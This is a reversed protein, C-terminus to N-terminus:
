KLIEKKWVFPFESDFGYTMGNNLEILFHTPFFKNEINVKLNKIDSTNIKFIELNKEYFSIENSKNLTLIGSMETDYESNVLDVSEYLENESKKSKIKLFEKIGWIIGILLSTGFIILIAKNNPNEDRLLFRLSSFILVGFLTILPYFWFFRINFLFKSIKLNRKLLIIYPIISFCILASLITFIYKYDNKLSYIIAFTGIILWSIKLTKKM